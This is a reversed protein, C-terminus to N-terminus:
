RAGTGRRSWGSSPGGRADVETRWKGRTSSLCAPSRLQIRGSPTSSDKSVLQLACVMVFSSTSSQSTNVAVEASPGISWRTLQLEKAVDVEVRFPEGSTIEIPEQSPRCVAWRGSQQMRLIGENETM